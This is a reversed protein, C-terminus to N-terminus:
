KTAAIKIGLMFRIYRWHAVRKMMPKSLLSLVAEISKSLFTPLLLVRGRLSYIARIRRFGINRLVKELEQTSYEKLHLGTATEDFFKSIDHPGNLRNPTFCIYVGGPVLVAFINKLQEIADDPHLHEMLQNSYVVNVSSRELPISCGDSFILDFNKPREKSKAIIESIEIAYAQKVFKAVEFTLSCDGAGLELFTFHPKLFKKLIKMQSTVHESQIEKDLKRLLQPHHPISAFLKDYVISYSYKRKGRSSRRLSDALGRELRYHQELQELNRKEKGQVKLSM